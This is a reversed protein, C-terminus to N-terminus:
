YKHIPDYGPTPAQLGNPGLTNPKRGAFDENTQVGTGIKMSEAYQLKQPNMSTYGPSNPNSARNALDILKNYEREQDTTRQTGLGYLEYTRAAMNRWTGADAGMASGLEYEQWASTEHLDGKVIDAGLGLMAPANDGVYTNWEMKDNDIQAKSKNTGDTNLNGLKAEKVRRVLDGQKSNALLSTAYRATAANAVVEHDRGQADKIKVTTGRRVSALQTAAEMQKGFNMGETMSSWNTQAEKTDEEFAKARAGAMIREASEKRATPTMGYGTGMRKMWARAGNKPVEQTYQAWKSQADRVKGTKKLSKTQAYKTREKREGM